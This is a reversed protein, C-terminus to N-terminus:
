KSHSPKREVSRDIQISLSKDINITRCYTHSVSCKSMQCFPVGKSFTHGTVTTESDSWRQWIVFLPRFSWAPVRKGPSNVHNTPTFAMSSQHENQKGAQSEDANNFALHSNTLMCDTTEQSELQNCLAWTESGKNWSADPEPGLESTQEPVMWFSCTCLSLHSLQNFHDTCGRWIM